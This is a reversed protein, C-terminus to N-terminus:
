SSRREAQTTVFYLAGLALVTNIAAGAARDPWDYVLFTVTRAFSAVFLVGGALYLAGSRHTLKWAVLGPVVLLYALTWIWHPFGPLDQVDVSLIFLCVALVVVAWWPITRM